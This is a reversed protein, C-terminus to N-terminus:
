NYISGSASGTRGTGPSLTGFGRRGFADAQNTDRYADAGRMLLGGLAQQTIGSYAQNLGAQAERLSNIQSVDPQAGLKIQRETAQRQEDLSQRATQDAADAASALRQRGLLLDSVTRGQTSRAASGGTLGRAALRSRDQRLTGVFRQDLERTGEDLTANRVNGFISDLLESNKRAEDVGPDPASGVAANGSARARELAKRAETLERLRIQRVTNNLTGSQYTKLADDYRRQLDAIVSGNATAVGTNDVTATDPAIGYLIRLQRILQEETAM